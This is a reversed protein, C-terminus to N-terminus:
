IYADNFLVGTDHEELTTAIGGGTHARLSLTSDAAM